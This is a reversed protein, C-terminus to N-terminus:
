ILLLKDVEDTLLSTFEAKREVAAMFEAETVKGDGDEDMEAFTFEEIKSEAAVDPNDHKVFAYMNKVLREMEERIIFGDNNTDFVRFIKKTKEKGSTTKLIHYAVAFESFEITGNNDKDFVNFFHDAVKEIDKKPYVQNLYKKLENRNMKGDENDILFQRWYEEVKEVPIGCEMALSTQEAQSLVPKGAIIGM